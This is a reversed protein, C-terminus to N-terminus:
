QIPDARPFGDRHRPFRDIPHTDMNSGPVAPKELAICSWWTEDNSGLVCTTCVLIALAVAQKM